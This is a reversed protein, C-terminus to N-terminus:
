DRRLRYLYFVGGTREVVESRRGEVKPPSSVGEWKGSMANTTRELVYGPEGEWWLMVQGVGAWIIGLKPVGGASTSVSGIQADDITVTISDRMVVTNAGPNTLVVRFSEEGEVEEDAILPVIIQKMGEGPQFTITGGSGKYDKGETATGEETQFEVRSYRRFDGTRYLTIVAAAAGEDVRMESVGFDIYAPTDYDLAHLEARLTMPMFAAALSLFMLKTRPVRMM